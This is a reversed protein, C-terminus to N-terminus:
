KLKSWTFTIEHKIHGKEKYYDLIQQKSDIQSVNINSQYYCVGRDYMVIIAHWRYSDEHFLMIEEFYDVCKHYQMFESYLRLFGTCNAFKRALVQGPREYSDTYYNANLGDNNWTFGNSILYQTLEFQNSMSDYVAKVEADTWEPYIFNWFSNIIFRLIRNFM